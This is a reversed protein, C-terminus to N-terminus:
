LVNLKAGFEKTRSRGLQPDFVGYVASLVGLGLLISFGAFGGIAFYSSALLTVVASMKWLTTRLHSAAGIRVLGFVFVICSSVVVLLSSYHTPLKYAIGASVDYQGNLASTMDCILWAAINNGTSALFSSQCKMCIAVLIGLITCRFIGGLLTGDVGNIERDYDEPRSKLEERIKWFDYAITSLLILGAFFVYFCIAMYLYAIGTFLIAEPVSIVEPRLIALKGWDVAYDGGGRMLPVLCVEIWQFVGAFVLCVIFVAWYTSSSSEVRRKWENHGEGSKALAVLKVRGKSKWFALLETAFFFFLPLFVMFVFTWNPAWLFGVQQIIGDVREVTASHIGTVYSLFGLAAAGAFVSAPLNLPFACGFLAESRVALGAPRLARKADIDRAIEAPAATEDTDTRRQASTQGATELSAEAKRGAKRKAALRFQAESLEVQWESTAVPDDCGFVRALWRINATSIGKDNEQFWLQVTRLDVGVRNSDIESIAEALLEPTWPGAPFGDHGLLRGAGAAALRKFLEKFDSGDKPPPLFFKENNLM